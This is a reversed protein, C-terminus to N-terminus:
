SASESGSEQNRVGSEQVTRIFAEANEVPVDPLIGHGLNAVYGPEAANADLMERTKAVVRDRPGLLVCPDLNGQFAVRGETRRRADAIDTRWDVGLAIAGSRAVADVLHAGNGMYHITCARSADLREFVRQTYPLAFEEYDEVSLNGGWSDFLQVAEAGAEIQAALYVAVTDALKTM